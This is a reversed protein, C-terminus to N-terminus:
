WRNDLSYELSGLQHGFVEWNSM